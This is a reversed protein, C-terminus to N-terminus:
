QGLQVVGADQWERLLLGTGKAKTVENDINSRPRIVLDVRRNLAQEAVKPLLPEQEGAATPPILILNQMVGLQLLAAQVHELRKQALRQNADTAGQEDTHGSLLLECDCSQLLQAILALHRQYGPGLEASNTDFLLTFLGVTKEKRSGTSEVAAPKGAAACETQHKVHNFRNRVSRIQHQYRALDDAADAMLGGALQRRTRVGQQQLQVIAAPICLNAGQLVLLETHADLVESQALLAAHQQDSLVTLYTPEAIIATSEGGGPSAPPWSGCGVLLLCALYSYNVINM